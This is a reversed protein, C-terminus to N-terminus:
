AMTHLDVAVVVFEDPRLGEGGKGEKRHAHQHLTPTSGVLPALRRRLGCRQAVRLHREDHWSRQLASATPHAAPAVRSDRREGRPNVSTTTARGHHRPPHVRSGSSGYTSASARPSTRVAPCPTPCPPTPAARKVDPDQLYRTYWLARMDYSVKQVRRTDSGAVM